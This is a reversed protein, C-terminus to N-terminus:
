SKLGKMPTKTKLMLNLLMAVATPVEAEGLAWRRVTRPNVAITEAFSTQGAYVAGDATIGLRDLAANFQDSTM